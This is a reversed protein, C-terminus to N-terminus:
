FCYEQVYYVWCVLQLIDKIDTHSVIDTQDEYLIGEVSRLHKNLKMYFLKVATSSMSSLAQIYPTIDCEFLVIHDHEDNAEIHRRKMFVNSPELFTGLAIDRM